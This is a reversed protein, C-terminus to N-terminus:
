SSHRTALLCTNLKAMGAGGSLVTKLPCSEMAGNMWGQWKMMQAFEEREQQTTGAPMPEQGPLYVPALLPPRLSAMTYLHTYVVLISSPVLETMGYWGVKLM